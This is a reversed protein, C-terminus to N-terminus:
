KLFRLKYLTSQMLAVIEDISNQIASDDGMSSRYVRVYELMYELEGIASEAPARYEVPYNLIMAKLGQYQEVVADVLDGLDDYYSGLAKHEAYSKSQLHLIHANTVGHLLCMIFESPSKAPREARLAELFHKKM